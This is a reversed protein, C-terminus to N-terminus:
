RKGPKRDAEAIKRLRELAQDLVPDRETTFADEPADILVDPQVGVADIPKGDPTMDLWRPINVWVKHPLSLQRPNASSGATRDGMTTVEPAQALMLVFSEASSMTKQGQLVIVPAQYRWPGRPQCIREDKHGLEDHKPGSRYQNLCYLSPQEIFRGAIKQALREDGGGNFRLDIILAWSESLQDLLRDFAEPLDDHGLRFINIYGIGDAPRGWAIDQRIQKLDPIYKELSRWNANLPRPRNYGPIVEMGVRVWIHLDELHDLMESVVAAAEYASEAAAAQPRYRERLADWDIQPKVTFLPYERDFAKWTEDFIELAAASDIKEVRPLSQQVFADIYEASKQDLDVSFFRRPGEPTDLDIILANEDPVMPLNNNQWSGRIKWACLRKAFRRAEPPGQGEVIDKPFLEGIRKPHFRLWLHAAAGEQGAASEFRGPEDPLLVAWLVNTKYRGFIATTPGLTVKLQEGLDIRFSRLRWVDEPGCEWAYGAHESQIELAVPYKEALNVNQANAAALWFLAACLSLKRM